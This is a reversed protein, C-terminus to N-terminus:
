LVARASPRAADPAVVAAHKAVAWGPEIRWCGFGADALCAALVRASHPHFSPPGPRLRHRARRAFTQWRLVPPVSLIVRDSTLDHLRALFPRPDVFYELVGMMLGVDFRGDPEYGEFDAQVFRCAHAVLRERAHRRALVLMARSVDVGVVEAGREALAVAYRGSGCGVDLVRRGSLDGLEAITLELRRRLPEYIWAQLGGRIGPVPDYLRDFVAARRDFYASVRPDGLSRPFVDESGEYRRLM